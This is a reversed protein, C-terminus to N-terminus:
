GVNVFFEVKKQIKSLIGELLAKEYRGKDLETILVDIEECYNEAFAVKEQFKAVLNALDRIFVVHRNEFSKQKDYTDVFYDWRLQMGNALLQQIKLHLGGILIRIPNNKGIRNLTKQYIRLTENLSVAFPYVRKSDKATNQISLPVAFGLSM